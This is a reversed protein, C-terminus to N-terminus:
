GDSDRTAVGFIVYPGITLDVSFGAAGFVEAFEAATRRREVVEFIRDGILRTEVQPAPWRAVGEAMFVPAGPRLAGHLSRLLGPLVEDPVHELFFCALACDWTRRPEWRWLDVVECEVEAPGGGLRDRGVQLVEDSSDLLWLRQVRHVIQESWYGTGAGLEVCDGRLPAAALGSAIDSLDSRWQANYEPGQDYDGTCTYVDDYRPARAQYYAIQENRVQDSVRPDSLDRQVKERVFPPPMAEPGTMTAKCELDM